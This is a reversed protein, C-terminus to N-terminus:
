VEQILHARGGSDPTGHRPLRVILAGLAVVVPIVISALLVATYNGTVDRGLSFLV